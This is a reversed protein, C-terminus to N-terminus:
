IHENIFNFRIIIISVVQIESYFISLYVDVTGVWGQFPFTIKVACLELLNIFLVVIYFIFFLDGTHKQQTGGVPKTRVKETRVKESVSVLPRLSM